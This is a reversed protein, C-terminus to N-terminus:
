LDDPLAPTEEVSGWYLMPFSTAGTQFVALIFMLSLERVM